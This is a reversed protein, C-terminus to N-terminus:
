YKKRAHVSDSRLRCFILLYKSVNGKKNLLHQLLADKYCIVSFSKRFPCTLISFTWYKMTGASASSAAHIRGRGRLQLLVHEYEFYYYHPHLCGWGAHCRLLILPRAAELLRKAFSGTPNVRRKAYM